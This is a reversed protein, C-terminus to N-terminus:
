ADSLGALRKKIETVAELRLQPDNLLQARVEPQMARKLEGRLADIMERRITPLFNRALHERLEAQIVPTLEATYKDILQAKVAEQIERKLQETADARLEVLYENRVVDVLESRINRIERSIAEAYEYRRLHDRFVSWLADLSADTIESNALARALIRRGATQTGPHRADYYEVETPDASPVGSSQPLNTSM